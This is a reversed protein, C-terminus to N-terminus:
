AALKQQERSNVQAPMGDKTQVGSEVITSSKVYLVQRADAMLRNLTKPITIAILIVFPLAMAVDLIHNPTPLEPLGPYAISHFICYIAILGPVATGFVIPNIITNGPESHVFHQGLRNQTSILIALVVIIPAHGVADVLGVMPIASILLIFLALAAVQSSLRGAILLFALCFEVIGSAIVFFPLKFGMLLHSMSHELLDYIWEPYAWKEVAVWLFSIATTARLISLQILYDQLGKAQYRLLCVAIGIFIPYDLMHFWGYEHIAYSYLILIGVASGITARKSLACIAICLQVIPVWRSTTTLEPTLIIPSFWFYTAIFAFFIAVGLRLVMPYLVTAKMNLFRLKENLRGTSRYIKLDIFATMIIIVFAAAFLIQFAAVSMLHQPSVPPKAIDVVKSFWKVHAHSPQAILILLFLLKEKM